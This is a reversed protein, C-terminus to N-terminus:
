FINEFTYNLLFVLLFLPISIVFLLCICIVDLSRTKAAIFPKSKSTYGATLGVETAVISAIFIEPANKGAAWVSGIFIADKAQTPLSTNPKSETAGYKEISKSADARPASTSQPFMYSIGDTTFFGM